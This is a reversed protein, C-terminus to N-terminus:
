NEKMNAITTHWTKCYPEPPTFIRNDLALGLEAKIEELRKSFCNLWWYTKGDTHIYPDYEFEIREGEYKGWLALNSPIENRVVSIHQRHRLTNVTYWKPILSRYFLGIGQDIELILRYGYGEIHSYRVTGISKILLM